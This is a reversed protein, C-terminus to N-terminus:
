LITQIKYVWVHVEGDKNGLGLKNRVDEVKERILYSDVLFLTRLVSEKVTRELGFNLVM